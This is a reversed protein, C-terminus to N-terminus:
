AVRLECTRGNWRVEDVMAADDDDDDGGGGSGGVGNVSSDVTAIEGRADEFKGTLQRPRAPTASEEGEGGQAAVAGGDSSASEASADARTTDAARTEEDEEGRKKGRMAEAGASQGIEVAGMGQAPSSNRPGAGDALPLSPVPTVSLDCGGGGHRVVGGDAMAERLSAGVDSDECTLSALAAGPAAGGRVDLPTKLPQNSVRHLGDAIADGGDVAACPPPRVALASHGASGADRSGVSHGASLGGEREEIM